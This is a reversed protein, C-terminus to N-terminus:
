IESGKELLEEYVDKMDENNELYRELVKEKERGELRGLHSYAYIYFVNKFLHILCM